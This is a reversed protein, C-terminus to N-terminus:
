ELTIAEWHRIVFDEFGLARATRLVKEPTSKQEKFAQRCSRIATDLGIKTSHRIAEALSREITTIRYYPKQLVGVVAPTETRLCRYKPLRSRTKPPVVVWVQQPAQELLGYQFLASLGGIASNSGFRVCAVAFDQTQADLDSEPHRYLNQELRLIEGRSVARSVTAQSFGRHEAEELTFLPLKQLSSLSKRPRGSPTKKIKDKPKRVSGAM